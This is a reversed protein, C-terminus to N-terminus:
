ESGLEHEHLHLHSIRGSRSLLRRALTEADLALHEDLREFFDQSARAVQAFAYAEPKRAAEYAELAARTEREACLAEDLARADDMALRTGSGISFHAAHAADGVLVICGHHWSRAGVSAFRRWSSRRAWLRHGALEDSFLAELFALTQEEGAEDLGARRWTTESCEVIFTSAGRRYRYAHVCFAGHPSAKIHFTFAEFPFSTGLWIFRNTGVYVEAGFADAYQERIRSSAGDAALVLDAGARWARLDAVEEGFRLDVGEAECSRRLVALLENRDAAAFRPGSATLARHGAHVRVDSWRWLIAELARYTDPDSRELSELAKASLVIGFGAVEDRPAREVVTIRWRPHSRKLLTAAYLGAPGGGVCLVKM